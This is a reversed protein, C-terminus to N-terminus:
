ADTRFTVGARINRADPTSAPVQQLSTQLGAAIAATDTSSNCTTASAGSIACDVITDSCVPPSADTCSRMDFTYSNGTGAAGSILVYLNLLTGSTPLLLSQESETTTLAGRVHPALYQTSAQSMNTGVGTIGWWTDRPNNGRFIYWIHIDSVTPTNAPTIQLGWTQGATGISVVDQDCVPATSGESLVVSLATDSGALRATVTWSQVGAGNAPDITPVACFGTVIGLPSTLVQASTETANGGSGGIAIYFDANVADAAAAFAPIIQDVAWVPPAFMLCGWLGLALSRM